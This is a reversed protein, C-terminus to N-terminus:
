VEVAEYRHENHLADAISTYLCGGFIMLGVSTMFLIAATGLEGTSALFVFSFLLEMSGLLVALYSIRFALELSRPSWKTPTFM